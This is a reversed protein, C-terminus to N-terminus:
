IFINYKSLDHIGFKQFFLGLTKQNNKLKERLAKEKQIEQDLILNGSTDFIKINKENNYDDKIVEYYEDLKILIDSLQNLDKIYNKIFSNLENYIPKTIINEKGQKENSIYNELIKKLNIFLDNNVIIDNLKEEYNGGGKMDISKLNKLNIKLKGSYLKNYGQYIIKDSNFTQYPVIKTALKWLSSKDTIDEQNKFIKFNERIIKKEFNSLDQKIIDVNLNNKQHYDKVLSGYIEWDKNNLNNQQSFKRNLYFKTASSNGFLPILKHYNM